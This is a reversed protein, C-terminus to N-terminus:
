FITSKCQVAPSSIRPRSSPCIFQLDSQVQSFKSCLADRAAKPLLVLEAGCDRIIFELREPPWNPDSSSSISPSLFSHILLLQTLIPQIPLLSQLAHLKPLNTRTSVFPHLAAGGPSASLPIMNQFVPPNGPICVQQCLLLEQKSHLLSASLWDWGRM